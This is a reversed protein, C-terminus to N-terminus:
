RASTPLGKQQWLDLLERQTSPTWRSGDGRDSGLFVAKADYLSISTADEGLETSLQWDAVGTGEELEFQRYRVSSDGSAYAYVGYTAKAGNNIVLQPLLYFEVQNVFGRPPVAPQLTNSTIGRRAVNMREGTRVGFETNVIPKQDGQRFTTSATWAEKQRDLSMFCIIRTDVLNWSGGLTREVMRGDMRFLYGEEQEEETWSSETREPNIEGRKGKWARIRRYGRETDDMEHGTASPISLRDWRGDMQQLARTYDADTLTAILAETTELAFARGVAIESNGFFQASRLVALYALRAEREDAPDCMLDFSVMQGAGADVLTYMRIRELDKEPFAVYFRSAPRGAVTLGTERLLVRARSEIAETSAEDVRYSGLVNELIRDTLDDVRLGGGARGPGDGPLGVRQQPAQVIMFWNSYNPHIELTPVDGRDARYASVDVPIQMELGVPELAVPANSMVVSSPGSQVAFVTTGLGIALVVSLSRAVVLTGRAPRTSMM